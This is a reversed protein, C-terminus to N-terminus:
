SQQVSIRGSDRELEAVFCVPVNLPKARLVASITFRVRFEDEAPRVDRKVEVSGPLLRPEFVKLVAAIDGAFDRVTAEDVSIHALDHFGFNLISTRAEPHDDLPIGAEFRVTNLLVALDHQVSRQFDHETITNRQNSVKGPVAKDEPSRRVTRGKDHERFATRFTHAFPSRVRGNM